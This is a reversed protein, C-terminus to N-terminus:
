VGSGEEEEAKVNGTARLSTTASVGGGAETVTVDATFTQVATDASEWPRYYKLELITDGAKSPTFKFTFTGGAGVLGRQVESQTFSYASGDEQLIPILIETDASTRTWSYGTTPNGNLNIMLTDDTSIFVTVKFITDDAPKDIKTVKRGLAM